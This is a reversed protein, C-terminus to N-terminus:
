RKCPEGTFAMYIVQKMAVHTADARENRQGALARGPTVGEQGGEVTALQISFRAPEVRWLKVPLTTNGDQAWRGYRQDLAAQIDDMSVSRDYLAVIGRPCTETGSVDVSINVPFVSLADSSEDLWLQSCGITACRLLGPNPLVVHKRGGENQGGLCPLAFVAAALLVARLYPPKM